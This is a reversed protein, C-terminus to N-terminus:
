SNEGEFHFRGFIRVMRYMLNCRWEKVDLEMMLHYFAKDAQEQDPNIWVLTMTNFMKAYESYLYDHAVAAKTYRGHPSIFGRFIRPVSVLNTVFGNPIEIYFGSSTTLSFAEGLKWKKGYPILYMDDSLM